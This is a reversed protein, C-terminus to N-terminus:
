CALDHRMLEERVSDRSDELGHLIETLVIREYGSNSMLIRRELRHCELTLMNQRKILLATRPCRTM